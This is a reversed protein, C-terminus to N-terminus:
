HCSPPLAGAVVERPVKPFSVVSSAEDCWEARLMERTHTKTNSELSGAAQLRM